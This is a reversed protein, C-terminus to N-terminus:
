PQITRIVCEHPAATLDSDREAQPFTSTKVVIIIAAM